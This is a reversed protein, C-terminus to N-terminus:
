GRGIAAFARPDMGLRRLHAPDPQRDHRIATVVHSASRLTGFAHSIRSAIHNLTM